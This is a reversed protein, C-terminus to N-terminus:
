MKFCNQEFLLTSLAHLSYFWGRTQDVAECIFDAPFRGDTLIDKNQAEFPYHYQAIQMDGSDLWCDIVESARKMQGGCSCKLRVDDVNPRHMGLKTEKMAKIDAGSRDALEDFSGLCEMKGCSECRWVPLPTGWYRERSFAWDVNNKLWDGFRGYKLHEPYWNIKENNAILQDKVATTRIYWTQKAYYLL